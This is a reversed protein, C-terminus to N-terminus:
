LEVPHIAHVKVKGMEFGPVAHHHRVEAVPSEGRDLREQEEMM